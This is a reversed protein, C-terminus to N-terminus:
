KKRAHQESCFAGRGFGRKKSRLSAFNFYINYYYYINDRNARRTETRRCSSDRVQFFLRENIKSFKYSNETQLFIKVHIKGQPPDRGEVPRIGRGVTTRVSFFWSRILKPVKRFLERQLIKRIWKQVKRFNNAESFKEPVEKPSPFFEIKKKKLLFHRLMQSKNEPTCKM